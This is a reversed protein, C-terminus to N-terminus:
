NKEEEFNRSLTLRFMVSINYLKPLSTHGWKIIKQFIELYCSKGSVLLFTTRRGNPFINSIGLVKTSYNKNWAKFYTKCVPPPLIHDTKDGLTWKIQIEGQEIWSFDLFISLKLLKERSSPSSLPPGWSGSTFTMIGHLETVNQNWFFLSAFSLFCALRTCKASISKPYIYQPVLM